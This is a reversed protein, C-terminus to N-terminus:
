CNFCPDHLCCRRILVNDDVTVSAADESTGMCFSRLDFGDRKFIHRGKYKGLIDRDLPFSFGKVDVDSKASGKVRDHM